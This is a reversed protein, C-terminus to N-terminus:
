DLTKNGAIVVSRTGYSRVHLTENVDYWSVRNEDFTRSYELKQPFPLVPIEFDMAMTAYDFDYGWRTMTLLPSSFATRINASSGASVPPAVIATKWWVTNWALLSTDMIHDLTGLTSAWRYNTFDISDIALLQEITSYQQFSSHTYVRGYPNHSIFVEAADPTQVRDYVTISIQQSKSFVQYPVVMYGLSSDSHSIAPFDPYQRAGNFFAISVTANNRISAHYDIWWFRTDGV